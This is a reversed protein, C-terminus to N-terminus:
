LGGGDPSICRGGETLGGGLFLVGGVFGRSGGLLDGELLDRELLDGELLRGRGALGGDRVFANTINRSMM